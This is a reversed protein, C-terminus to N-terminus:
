LPDCSSEDTLNWAGLQSFKWKGRPTAKFPVLIGDWVERVWAATPNSVHGVVDADCKMVFFDIGRTQDSTETKRVQKSDM